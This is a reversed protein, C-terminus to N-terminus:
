TLPIRDHQLCFYYAADESKVDEITLTFDVGHVTGSFRSPVGSWLTTAEKIILKPAEGPKWQYWNVDDGIDQSAKCTIIVKDGPIVLMSEPSQTVTIEARTDFIWLLLFSLLQAQSGMAKAWSEATTLKRM